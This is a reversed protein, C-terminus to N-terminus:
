NNIENLALKYECTNTKIWVVIIRKPNIFNCGVDKIVNEKCTNWTLGTVVLGNEKCQYRYLRENKRM